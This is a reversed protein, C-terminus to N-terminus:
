VCTSIRASRSNPMATPAANTVTHCPRLKVVSSNSDSRKGNSPRTSVYVAHPSRLRHAQLGRGNDRERRNCEDTQDATDRLRSRACAASRVTSAVAAM